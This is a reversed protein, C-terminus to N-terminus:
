DEEETWSYIKMQAGPMVHVNADEALQKRVQEESVVPAVLDGGMTTGLLLGAGFSKPRDVGGCFKEYKQCTIVKHCYKETSPPPDDMGAMCDKKDFGIVLFSSSSSNSVFGQRIKM